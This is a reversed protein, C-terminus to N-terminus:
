HLEPNYIIGLGPTIGLYPHVSSTIELKYNGLIIDVAGYYISNSSQIGLRASLINNITYDIEPIWDIAVTEIKHIMIGLFLEKSVDYGLGGSLQFPIRQDNKNIASPMVNHLQFGAYIQDTIHGLLSIDANISSANGFYIRNILYYNFQIGINVWENMKRGYSLAFLSQSYGDNGSRNIITGFAGEKLPLAASVVYNSLDNLLFRREGNVGISFKKIAALEAQNHEISFVDANTNSYSNVGPTNLSSLVVSSQAFLLIHFTLCLWCLINTKM